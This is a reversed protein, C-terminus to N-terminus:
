GSRNWAHQHRQRLGVSISEREQTPRGVGSASEHCTPTAYRLFAPAVLGGDSGDATALAAPIGPHRCGDRGPMSVPSPAAPLFAWAALCRSGSETNPNQEPGSAIPASRPPTSSASATCPRFVPHSPQRLAQLHTRVSAECTRTGDPHRARLKSAVGAERPFRAGEADSGM